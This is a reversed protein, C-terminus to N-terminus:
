IRGAVQVWAPGTARYAWGQPNEPLLSEPGFCPRAKQLGRLDRKVTM